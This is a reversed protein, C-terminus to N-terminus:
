CGDCFAGRVLYLVIIVGVIIGVGIAVKAGTSLNNGKVQAVNSYAVAAPESGNLSGIVFGTDSVESIYGTMETRDKLKITVRTSRGIGLKAIGMKIKETLRADREASSSAFSTVNCITFTLLFALVTATTHKIM